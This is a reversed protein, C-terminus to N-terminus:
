ITDICANIYYLMGRITDICPHFREYVTDFREEDINGHCFPNIYNFKEMVTCCGFLNGNEDIVSTMLTCVGKPSQCILHDKYDTVLDKARGTLCIEHVFLQVYDESFESLKDKVMLELSNDGPDTTIVVGSYFDGSEQAGKVLNIVNELPIFKQHYKDVSTNILTVDKLQNLKERVIDISNAWYSNTYLIIDKNYEKIIKIVELLFNFKTFPEGGTLLITKM